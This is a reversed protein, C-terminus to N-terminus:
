TAPEPVGTSSSIRTAAARPRPTASSGSETAATYLTQERTVVKRNLDTITARPSTSRSGNGIAFQGRGDWPQGSRLDLGAEQTQPATWVIVHECIRFTMWRGCLVYRSIYYM